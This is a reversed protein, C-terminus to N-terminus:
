RERDEEIAEGKRRYIAGTLKSNLVLAWFSPQRAVCIEGTNLSCLKPKNPLTLFVTIGLKGLEQASHCCIGICIEM